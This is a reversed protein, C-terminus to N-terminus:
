IETRGCFGQQVKKVKKKHLIKFAICSKILQKVEKTSQDLMSLMTKKTVQILNKYNLM